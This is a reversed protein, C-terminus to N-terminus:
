LLRNNQVERDKILAEAPRTPKRHQAQGRAPVILTATAGPPLLLHVNRTQHFLDSATPDTLRRLLDSMRCRM